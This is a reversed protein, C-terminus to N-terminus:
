NGDGSKIGESVAEAKARLTELVETPIGSLPSQMEANINTQVPKGELSDKIMEIAKLRNPVTQKKDLSIEYLAVAIAKNRPMGTEKDIDCSLERLWGTIQKARLLAM